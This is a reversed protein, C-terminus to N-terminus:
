EASSNRSNLLLIKQKFTKYLDSIGLYNAEIQKM